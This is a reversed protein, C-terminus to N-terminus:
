ANVTVETGDGPRTVKMEVTYGMALLKRVAYRLRYEEYRGPNKDKWQRQYEAVTLETGAKANM